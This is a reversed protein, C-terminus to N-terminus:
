DFKSIGHEVSMCYLDDVRKKGHSFEERLLRPNRELFVGPRHIAHRQERVLRSSYAVPVVDRQGCVPSEEEQTGFYFYFWDM